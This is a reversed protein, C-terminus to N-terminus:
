APRSCGASCSLRLDRSEEGKWNTVSLLIWTPYGATHSQAQGSKIEQLRGRSSSIKARSNQLLKAQFPFFDSYKADNSCYVFITM